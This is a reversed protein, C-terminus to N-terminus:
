ISRAALNGSSIAEAINFPDACDGVAIARIGDLEDLLGLNPEPDSMDVLADCPITMSVGADSTFTIEGDGVSEMQAGPWVRVGAATIASEIFHRVNM